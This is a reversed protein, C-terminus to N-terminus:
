TAAGTNNLKDVLGARPFAGALVVGARQPDPPIVGPALQGLALGLRRVLTDADDDGEELGLWAFPRPDRAVWQSLVTTKGYGAPARVVVLPARSDRLRNVLATRVISEARVDPGRTDVALADRM